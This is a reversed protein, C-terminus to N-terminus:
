FLWSAVVHSPLQMRVTSVKSMRKYMMNGMTKRNVMQLCRAHSRHGHRTGKTKHNYHKQM